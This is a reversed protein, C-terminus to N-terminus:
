GLHAPECCEEATGRKHLLVELYKPGTQLLSQPRFLTEGYSQWSEESSAQAMKSRAYSACPGHTKHFVCSHLQRLPFVGHVLRLRAPRSMPAKACTQLACLRSAVSSRLTVQALTCLHACTHVLTCPLRLPKTLVCPWESAFHPIWSSCQHWSSFSWHAFHAFHAFPPCRSSLCIVIISSM